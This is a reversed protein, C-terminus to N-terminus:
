NVITGKPIVVVGDPTVDFRERDEVPDYGIRVGPSIYCEKDIIAHRIKARRGIETHEMIVSDTVSSYSNVRVGPGLISRHIQGGSVICGECVMSDTASGVRHSKKDAFVFKAPPMPKGGSRIPWKYNYLNFAPSVSVLDMHAQYYTDLDGIDKWYGEENKKAGEIKNTSFDYAYVPYEQYMSTVINKGFDHVSKEDEADRCIERILTDTNFIYNGMSALAMDPRDPMPMPEAPKEVFNTMRGEGNIQIIGFKHSEGIPVPIAAVTMEARRATHYDLMQRTDMRYIHDAGFVCVFDPDEATIIDMSQYVADASGRYWWPGHRMQAPVAEVFFGQSPALSWYRNLHKNLSNSKFQTLVKIRLFGSNVFNSLVFDIIRYRGAFPVAPKARDRTLPQLRKGEGGAMVITLIKPM